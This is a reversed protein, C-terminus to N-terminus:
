LLASSKILDKTIIRGAGKGGDYTKDWPSGNSHTKEVLEWPYLGRLRSAVREILEEQRSNLEHEIKPKLTIKLGGFLSFLRYISPIVPGYRWAEFDDDFLAKGTEKFSQVQCFYLIKQLQLNSIPEGDDICFNVM